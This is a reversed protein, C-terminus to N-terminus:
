PLSQVAVVVYFGSDTSGLIEPDTYTTDGVTAIVLDNDLPQYPQDLRYIRYRDAGPVPSWELVISAESVSIALDTVPLLDPIGGFTLAYTGWPELASSATITDGTASADVDIARWSQVDTRYHALYAEPHLVHDPWLTQDALVRMRAHWSDAPITSTLTWHEVYTSDANLLVPSLEWVRLTAFGGPSETVLLQVAEPPFQVWVSDSAQTVHPIGVTVLRSASQDDGESLPDRGNLLEMGDPEGGLDTDALRPNTQHTLIESGDILLDSDSDADHPFCDYIFENRNLLSDLDHDLDPDVVAHYVEWDDPMFDQDLDGADLPNGDYGDPVKDLDSDRETPDTGANLEGGNSLADYDYDGMPSDVIELSGFYHEEWEDSLGDEDVDVTDSVVIGVPVALSGINDVADRAAVTVFCTAGAELGSLSFATVGGVDIPSQGEVAESGGYPPQARNGYYLMYSLADPVPSWSISLGGPPQVSVWLSDPPDPPLNDGFAEPQGLVPASPLSLNGDFDYAAVKFQYQEGNLLGEADHHSLAGIDLTDSFTEALGYYLRYGSLDPDAVAAWQVRVALDGNISGEIVPVAPATQDSISLTGPSVTRVPLNRGDDIWGVIWYDGETLARGDFQFLTDEIGEGLMILGDGTSTTDLLLTMMLADTIDPDEWTWNVTFTDISAGSEGDPSLLQGNPATNFLYLGATYLDSEEEDVGSIVLTWLGPEPELLGIKQFDEQSYFDQDPNVIASTSDYQVSDPDILSLGAWAGEYLGLYFMAEAQGEPMEMQALVETRVRNDRSAVERIWLKRVGHRIGRGPDLESELDMNWDCYWDEPANWFLVCGPHNVGWDCAAGIGLNTVLADGQTCYEIPILDSLGPGICVQADFAGYLRTEGHRSDINVDAMGNLFWFDYSPIYIDGTAHVAEGPVIDLEASSLHQGVMYLDSNSVLRGSSYVALDGDMQMIPSSVGPLNSITVVSAELLLPSWTGECNVDSASGGLSTLAFGTSGIPVGPGLDVTVDFSDIYYPECESSFSFGIHIGVQGASIGGSASMALVEEDYDFDIRGSSLGYNGISFEQPFEISGALDVGEPGYYLNSLCASTIGPFLVCGNVVKFFPPNFVANELELNFGGINFDVEDLVLAGSEIGSGSLVLESFGITGGGGFGSPIMLRPNVARLSENEWTLSDVLLQMGGLEVLPGQIFSSGSVSGDNLDITFSLDVEPQGDSDGDIYDLEVHAHGSVTAGAPDLEINLQQPDLNFGMLDQMLYSTAADTFVGTNINLTFSGRYLPTLGLLPLDLFLDVTGSSVVEDGAIIVGSQADLKVLPDPGKPHTFISVSGNAFTSDGVTTISEAEITFSGAILDSVEGGTVTLDTNTQQTATLDDSVTVRISYVTAPATDPVTFVANLSDTGAYSLPQSSGLGFDSLDAWASLLQGEPDTAAVLLEVSDMGSNSVTTPICEAWLIEPPGNDPDVLVPGGPAVIEGDVECIWSYTGYTLDCFEVLGDLGTSGALEQVGEKSLRVLAESVPVDLELLQITLCDRLNTYNTSYDGVAGINFTRLESFRSPSGDIMAAVQWYYTGGASFNGPLSTWTTGDNIEYTILPNVFEGPYDAELPDEVLQSSQSVQVLYDTAGEYEEWIFTLLPSQSSGPLPELLQVDPFTTDLTFLDSDAYGTEAVTVHVLVLVLLSAFYLAFRQQLM